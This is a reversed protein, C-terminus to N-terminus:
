CVAEELRARRKPTAPRYISLALGGEIPVFVNVLRRLRDLVRKMEAHARAVDRATLITGDHVPSGYEVVLRLDDLRYGRERARAEAHRSIRLDPRVRRPALPPIPPEVRETPARPEAHRPDARDRAPQRVSPHRRSM